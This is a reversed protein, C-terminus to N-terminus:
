QTQGEERLRALARDYAKRATPALTFAYYMQTVQTTTHGMVAAIDSLDAGQERLWM